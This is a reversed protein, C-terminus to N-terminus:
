PEIVSVSGSTETAVYLNDDSPNFALAIPGEGVTITDEITNTSTDITSINASVFDAVYLNDDSPNFALAIPGEGVTITDELTAALSAQIGSVSFFYWFSFILILGILVQAPNVSRIGIVKPILAINYNDKV